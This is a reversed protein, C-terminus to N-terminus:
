QQCYKYYFTWPVCGDEAMKKFMIKNEEFYTKYTDYDKYSKIPLNMIKEFDQKSLKLRKLVHYILNNDIEEPTSIKELAEERGMQGSRVLASFEVIRKDIGFKKPLLYSKV